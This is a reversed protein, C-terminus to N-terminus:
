KKILQCLIRLDGEGFKEKGYPDSEIVDLDFDTDTGGSLRRFNGYGFSSLRKTIEDWSTHAYTASLGDMIHAIKNRSINMSLLVEGIFSAPIDKLIDVSTDWLDYSIGGEGDTYYWLWGGKKLVRTAEEIAKNEDDLHHFVGNQIAFDFFNDEYGTEYVTAVKFHANSLNMSRSVKNAFKISNEGFDIGYAEKAGKQITAFCFVGNGCGFDIIKKDEILPALNNINIRHLYREIYEQFEAENYRDWIQNFLDQHKDEKQKTKTDTIKNKINQIFSISQFHEFMLMTDNVIKETLMYPHETPNKDFAIKEYRMNMGVLCVVKAWSIFYDDSGVGGMLSKLDDLGKIYVKEM